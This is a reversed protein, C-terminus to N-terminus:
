RSNLWCSISRSVKMTHALDKPSVRSSILSIKANFSPRDSLWQKINGQKPSSVDILGGRLMAKAKSEPLEDLLCQVQAVTLTLAVPIQPVVEVLQVLTTLAAKARDDEPLLVLLGPVASPPFLRAVVAFSSLVTSLNESALLKTQSGVNPLNSIWALITRLRDADESLPSLQQWFLQRQYDSTNAFWATLEAEPQNALIAIKQLIRSRLDNHQVIATLWTELLASISTYGGVGTLRDTPQLWQTWLHRAAIAKGQLVSLTPIAQCRQSQHLDLRAIAQQLLETM